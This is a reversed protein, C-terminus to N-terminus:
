LRNDERILKDHVNEMDNFICEKIIIKFYKLFM